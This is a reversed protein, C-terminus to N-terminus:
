ISLVLMKYRNAFSKKNLDIAEQRKKQPIGFINGYNEVLFGSKFNSSDIFFTQKNEDVELFMERQFEGKLFLNPKQKNTRKAYPVSLYPVGTRKHIFPKEDVDKSALMNAKNMEVLRKENEKISEAIHVKMNKVFSDSKLRIEHLRGM